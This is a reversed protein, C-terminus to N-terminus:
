PNIKASWEKALVITRSQNKIADLKNKAALMVESILESNNVAHYAASPPINKIADAVLEDLMKLWDKPEAERGWVPIGERLYAQLTYDLDAAIVLTIKDIVTSPKDWENIIAKAQSEAQAIAQEKAVEAAKETKAKKSKASGIMLLIASAKVLVARDSRSIGANKDMVYEWDQKEIIKNISTATRKALSAQNQITKSKSM